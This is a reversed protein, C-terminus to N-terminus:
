PTCIANSYSSPGVANVARIRYEYKTGAVATTDSYTTVDAALSVLLGYTGTTCPTRRELESSTENNPAQNTDNWALNQAFSFTATVSRAQTMTVTCSGTGTCAGSWGTFASGTSPTVSLTAQAGNALNESCDSPCTIGPGTVSGSGNGAITVNLPFTQATFTATVTRAQSMTVTCTGTGSCAGSWGNFTDGGFPQATLTVQQPANITQTCDPGCTIGPGLVQGSAAGTGAKTVTLVYREPAQGIGGGTPPAVQAWAAGSWLLVALLATVLTTM